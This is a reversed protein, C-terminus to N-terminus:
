GADLTHPLILQYAVTQHDPKVAAAILRRLGRERHLLTALM